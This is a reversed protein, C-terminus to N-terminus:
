KAMGFLGHRQSKVQFIRRGGPRIAEETRPTRRVPEAAADARDGKAKWLRTLSRDGKGSLEQKGKPEARALDDRPM